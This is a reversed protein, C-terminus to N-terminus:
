FAIGHPTIIERSVVEDEHEYVNLNVIGLALEGHPGCFLAPIPNVYRPYLLPGNDKRCLEIMARMTKVALSSTAPDDRNLSHHLTQLDTADLLQLLQARLYQQM